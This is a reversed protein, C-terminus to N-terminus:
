DSLVKFTRAINLSSSIVAKQMNRLVSNCRGSGVLQRLSEKVSRSSGGLADIIINHQETKYGPYRRRLEYRLPAYKSTKEACKTERNSVWPCSMELLVVKKKEKDIVTCDIRNNRVEAYEAYLPVDWLAKGKKNEYLPKPTSQSYWPPVSTVLDLDKLLEYFIVKLAANHRTMYKSQALAGCGALVHAQTEAAKGCMRCKVDQSKHTGTKKQHYVKTPLLQQYLEQLGAITHTPATKWESMWSFCEEGVEQDEWRESLLSGQWGEVKLEEVDREATATKLWVGIKKVPVEEDKMLCTILPQPHVLSLKLGFESAYKKADKVMSRRGKEESREEFQRVVEMAPDENRYLRVVAKIKTQKYEREVSKLGRGGLMRPLYLLATSGLPHKGGNEVIVKRAERDLRKLEVVPWCQTPTRYSLVPMAFQNSAQVKNYDSLPSSWILSLRQLYAKGAIQLSLDDDQKTNEMVGLFKYHSGEAM